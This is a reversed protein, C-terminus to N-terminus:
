MLTRKDGSGLQRWAQVTERPPEPGWSGCSKGSSLDFAVLPPPKVDHKGLITLTRQLAAVTGPGNSCYWTAATTEFVARVLASFDSRVHPPITSELSSSFAEPNKLVEMQDFADAWNVWTEPTVTNIGWLHEIFKSLEVHAIEYHRAFRELCVLAIAERELLSLGEILAIDINEAM